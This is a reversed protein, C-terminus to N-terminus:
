VVNPFFLLDLIRIEVMLCMVAVRPIGSLVILKGLLYSISRQLDSGLAGSYLSILSFCSPFCIIKSSSFVIIFDSSSLIMTTSCMQGLIKGLVADGHLSEVSRPNRIVAVLLFVKKLRQSVLLKYIQKWSFSDNGQLRDERGLERCFM